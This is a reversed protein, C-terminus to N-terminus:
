EDYVTDLLKFEDEKRLVERRADDEIIGKLRRALLWEERHEKNMKPARGSHEKSWAVIARFGERVVQEPTPKPTKPHVNAFLPDEFINLLDEPWEM